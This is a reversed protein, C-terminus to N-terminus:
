AFRWDIKPSQSNGICFGCTAELLRAGSDLLDSFHLRRKSGDASGTKLRACGWIICRSSSKQREYNQCGNAIEKYSSNTCSGLMVQDVKIDKMDSVQVVNGPSHPAAALPELESLDLDLSQDYEADDDAKLEVWDAKEARHRSSSEQKRM